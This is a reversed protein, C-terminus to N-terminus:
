IMGAEGLVSFADTTVDDIPLGDKLELNLGSTASITRISEQVFAQWIQHWTIKVSCQILLELATIGFNWIPLLLPVFATCAMQYLILFFGTLGCQKDWKSICHSVFGDWHKTTQSLHVQHPTIVYAITRFSQDFLSCM